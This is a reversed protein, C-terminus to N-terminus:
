LFVGTFLVGEGLRQLEGLDTVEGDTAALVLLWMM